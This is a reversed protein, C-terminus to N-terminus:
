APQRRRAKLKKYLPPPVLSLVSLSALAVIVQPTLAGALTFDSMMDFISGLGAGISAFVFAGPIIGILTAVVYTRLSVGLFAPVINILFFPFVPILRLSLLYSFANESFGAEMKRLATGARKRLGDGLVTRAMLFLATAGATAAIVVWATGFAIGFLFGGAITLVASGPVAIATILAYAAIFLVVSGVMNDHVFAMLEHRNDALTQVMLYSDGGLAFFLAIVIALGAVPSLRLLLTARNRKTGVTNEGTNRLTTM